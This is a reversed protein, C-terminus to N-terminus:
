RSAVEARTSLDESSEVTMMLLYGVIWLFGFQWPVWCLCGLVSLICGTYQPDKIYGFPFDTVWPINNGFRVGYYTGSEGLLQYVKFNLYQGSIILLISYFPPWRLNSVSLVALIQILKLVHSIQAMRHSPDITSGCCQVWRKPYM